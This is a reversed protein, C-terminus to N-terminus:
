KGGKKAREFVEKVEYLKAMDAYPNKANEAEEKLLQEHLIRIERARRVAHVALIIIIPGGILWVLLRLTEYSIM